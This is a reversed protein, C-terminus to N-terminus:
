VSDIYHTPTRITMGRVRRVQQAEGSRENEVSVCCQQMKLRPKRKRMARDIGTIRVDKPIIGRLGCQKGRNMTTTRQDGTEGIGGALDFAFWSSAFDSVALRLSRFPWAGLSVWLVLPLVVAHPWSSLSAILLLLTQWLSPLLSLLAPAVAPQELPLDAHHCHTEGLQSCCTKASRTNVKM